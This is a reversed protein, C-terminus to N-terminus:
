MKEEEGGNRKRLATREADRGSRAATTFLIFPAMEVWVAFEM